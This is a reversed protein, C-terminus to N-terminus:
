KVIDPDTSPKSPAPTPTAPTATNTGAPTAPRPNAPAVARRAVAAPMGLSGEPLTSRTLFVEVRRNAPTNGNASNQVLPRFEGFGAFEARNAALGQSIIFNRVSIARFASLEINDKFPRGARGSVPQSDTHGVVKVDYQQASPLERLIRGFAELSQRAGSTLEFSGSAFTLDSNFRLMGRASDYTLLDGYQKALEALAADTVSDVPGMNLGALRSEMEALRKLLDDNQSRLSSITANAESASMETRGGRRRADDLAAQLSKIRDLQEQNQATLAKNAEYLEDYTGQKICGGASLTGALLLLACLKATLTPRVNTTTTHQLATM